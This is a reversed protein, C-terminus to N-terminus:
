SERGRGRVEDEQACRSVVGGWFRTVRLPACRLRLTQVTDGSWRRGWPMRRRRDNISEAFVWGCGARSQRAPAWVMWVCCLIISKPGFTCNQGYSNYKGESRSGTARCGVPAISGASFWASTDWPARRTGVQRLVVYLPIIHYSLGRVPCARGARPLSGCRGRHVHSTRGVARRLSWTAPEANFVVPLVISSRAPASRAPCRM